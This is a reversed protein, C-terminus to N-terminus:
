VTANVINTNFFIKFINLSHIQRIVALGIEDYNGRCDGNRREENGTGM